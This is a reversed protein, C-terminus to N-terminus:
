IISSSYTHFSFEIILEIKPLFILCLPPQILYTPASSLSQDDAACAHHETEVRVPGLETYNQCSCGSKADCEMLRHVHNGSLIVIM